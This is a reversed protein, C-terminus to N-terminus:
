CKIEGSTIKLFIGNGKLAEEIAFLADIRGKAWEVSKVICPNQDGEMQNVFAREKELALKISNKIESKKMKM